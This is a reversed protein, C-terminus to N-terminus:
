DRADRSWDHIKRILASASVPLNLADCIEQMSLDPSAERLELIQQKFPELKSRRGIRFKRRIGQEDQLRRLMYYVTRKSVGFARSVNEVSMGSQLSERIQEKVRSPIRRTMENGEPTNVALTESVLCRQHIQQVTSDLAGHHHFRGASACISFGLFRQFSSRGTRGSRSASPSDKLTEDVHDNYLSRAGDGM